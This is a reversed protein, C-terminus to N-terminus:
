GIIIKEEVYKVGSPRARTLALALTLPGLRGTFMMFMIIGKGVATLSPTIGLTLGVTAFASTAEFLTSIVPLNETASLVIGATLILAMATFVIFIGRFVQEKALRKNFVTFDTRGMILSWFGVATAALTTTKVGGGTSGPSAGIFMLVVILMATAEHLKSLDVTNFGATRPTISQFATALLKSGLPLNGLTGPNGWELLAFAVFGFCLLFLTTIVVLKSHLSLKYWVRVQHLESIVMFGLGGFVILGGIVLNVPVSSVQGTLSSYNGFLDFGANNFASVAHFLGYYAAKGWGMEGAWNITLVLAGTLEFAATLKLIYLALRVVGEMSNKNMAEQLMIRERLLIKRGMLVAILTAMSMFGLGGIQILLMIVVQGFTSYTTLTDVVVLGTVCVASTSTFLADLFTVEHGPKAALPSSLLVGGIFIVLAFGLVLFRAPSIDFLANKKKPITITAM